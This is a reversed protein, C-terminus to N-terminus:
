CVWPWGLIIASGQVEEFRRCLFDMDASSLGEPIQMGAVFLTRSLTITAINLDCLRRPKNLFIDNGYLKSWESEEADMYQGRLSVLEVKAEAYVTKSALLLGSFTRIADTPSNVMEKYLMLRLEFINIFREAASPEHHLETIHWGELLSALASFEADQAEPRGVCKKAKKRLTNPRAHPNSLDKLIMPDM